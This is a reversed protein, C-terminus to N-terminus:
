DAQADDADDGWLNSAVAGRTLAMGILGAVLEILENVAVGHVEECVGRLGFGVLVTAEQLVHVDVAHVDSEGLQFRAGAALIGVVLGIRPLLTQHM